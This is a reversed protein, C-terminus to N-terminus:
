VSWGNMDRDQPEPNDDMERLYDAYQEESMEECQNSVDFTTM